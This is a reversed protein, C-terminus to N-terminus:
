VEIRAQQGDLFGVYGNHSMDKCSWQEMKLHLKPKDSSMDQNYWPFLPSLLWPARWGPGALVAPICPTHRSTSFCSGTGWGLMSWAVLM